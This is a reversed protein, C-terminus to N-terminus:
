VWISCLSHSQKNLLIGMKCTMGYVKVAWNVRTFLKSLFKEVITCSQFIHYRVPYEQKFEKILRMIYNESVTMLFLNYCVGNWVGLILELTQLSFDETTGKNSQFEDLWSGWGRGSTLAAFHVKIRSHMIELQALHACFDQHTLEQPTMNSELKFDEM